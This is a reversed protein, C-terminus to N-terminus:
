TVEINCGYTKNLYDIVEKFIKNKYKRVNANAEVANSIIM